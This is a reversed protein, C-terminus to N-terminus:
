SGAKERVDANTVGAIANYHRHDFVGHDVPDSEFAVLFGLVILERCFHLRLRAPCQRPWCHLGIHLADNFDIVAGAAEVHGNVRLDDFQGVVADIEYELDFLTFFRPDLVDTKDSRVGKRGATQLVHDLSGFAIKQTEQLSGVNIVGITDFGVAIQQTTEVQFVAIGIHTNKRRDAFVIWGSLSKDDGKRDVFATLIADPGYIDNRVHM